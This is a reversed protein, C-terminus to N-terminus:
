QAADLRSRCLAVSAVLQDRAHTFHGGHTVVLQNAIGVATLEQSLKITPANLDFDDSDGVAILAFRNM